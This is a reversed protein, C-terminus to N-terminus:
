LLSEPFRIVLRRCIRSCLRVTKFSIWTPSLPSSWSFIPVKSPTVTSPAAPSVKPSLPSNTVNETAPWPLQAPPTVPPSLAFPPQPHPTNSSVTLMRYLQQVVMLGLTSFFIPLFIFPLHLFPCPGMSSVPVSWVTWECVKGLLEDLLM